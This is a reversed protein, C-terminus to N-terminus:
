KQNTVKIKKYENYMFIKSNKTILDIKLIDAGLKVSRDDYVVKNYITALNDQFSLDLNQSTIKHIQYTVLVNEKFNTEYNTKNYNAYNSKIIIPDSNILNIVAEVNTMYVINTDDFNIEGIESKIKFKNGMDDTSTYSINKIVNSSNGSVSIEDDSNIKDVNVNTKNNKYFYYYTTATSILIIFLLLQILIKINM